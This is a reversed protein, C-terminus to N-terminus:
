VNSEKDEESRMEPRLHCTDTYWDLTVSHLSTDGGNAATSAVFLGLWLFERAVTNLHKHTATGKGAETRRSVQCVLSTYHWKGSEARRSVHCVLSTYHWKGAEAGRSVQFVLLTHRWKGAEARRSFQCVLSTHQWKGSEARRSVQCVKTTNVNYQPVIWLLTSMNHELRM